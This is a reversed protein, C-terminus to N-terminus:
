GVPTRPASGKLTDTRAPIFIIGCRNILQYNGAYRVPFKYIHINSYISTSLVPEICSGSGDVLCACPASAQALM